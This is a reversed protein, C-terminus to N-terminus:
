LPVHPHIRWLFEHDMEEETPKKFSQVRVGQPNILRFVDRILGDKGSADM